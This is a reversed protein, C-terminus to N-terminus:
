GGPSKVRMLLGDLRPRKVYLNPISRVTITADDLKITCKRKLDIDKDAVEKDVPLVIAYDILEKCLKLGEVTYREAGLFEIKTLISIYFYYRLPIHTRILDVASTYGQIHYILIITDLLLDGSTM